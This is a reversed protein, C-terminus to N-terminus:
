VNVNERHPHLLFDFIIEFTGRFFVCAANRDRHVFRMVCTGRRCSVCAIVVNWSDVSNSKTVYFCLFM